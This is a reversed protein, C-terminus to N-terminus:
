HGNQLFKESAAHDKKHKEFDVRNIFTLPCEICEFPQLGNHMHLIHRKLHFSRILRLGCAPCVHTRVGTHSALHQKLDSRTIFARGCTDCEFNKEGTHRRTHYQLHGVTRFSRPCLLCKYPTQGTHKRKHASLGSPQAFSEGCITCQLPKEGTHTRLHVKLNQALSFDKNCHPCTYPKEGTHTRLHTKLRFRSSMVKGCTSCQPKEKKNGSDRKTPKSSENKIESKNDETEQLKMIINNQNSTSINSTALEIKMLFSNEVKNAELASRLKSDTTKCLNIFDICDNLRALCNNCISNPLGDGPYVKVKALCMIKTSIMIKDRQNFLSNHGDALCVRCQKTM